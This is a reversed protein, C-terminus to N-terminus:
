IDTWNRSYSQLEGTNRNIGMYADNYHPAMVVRYYSLYYNVDMLSDPYKCTSCNASCIPAIREIYGDARAKAEEQEAPLKRWYAIMRRNSYYNLINGDGDM